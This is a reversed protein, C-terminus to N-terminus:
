KQIWEIAKTVYAEGTVSGEFCMVALMVIYGIIALIIKVTKM